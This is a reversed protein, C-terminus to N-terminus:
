PNPPADPPAPRAPEFTAEFHFPQAATTSGQVVYEYDGGELSTSLSEAATMGASSSDVVEEGRLLYLDLDNALIGWSLIAKATANGKLAFPYRFCTSTPPSCAPGGSNIPDLSPPMTEDAEIPAPLTAPEPPVPDVAELLPDVDEACGALLCTITALLLLRM